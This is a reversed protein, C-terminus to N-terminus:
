IGGIEVKTTKVNYSTSYFDVENLGSWATTWVVAQFESGTQYNHSGCPTNISGTVVSNTASKLGAGEAVKVGYHANLVGDIWITGGQYLVAEGGFANATINGYFDATSRASMQQNCASLTHVPTSGVQGTAANANHRVWADKNLWAGNVMAYVDSNGTANAFACAKPNTGSCTNNPIAQRITWSGTSVVWHAYAPAM